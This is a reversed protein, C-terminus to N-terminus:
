GSFPFLEESFPFYVYFADIILRVSEFVEELSISGFCQGRTELVRESGNLFIVM